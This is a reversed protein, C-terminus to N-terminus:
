KIYTIEKILDNSNVYPNKYLKRKAPLGMHKIIPSKVNYEKLDKEDIHYGIARKPCFVVCAMCNCCNHMFVPKKDKIQINHNPCVKTCLGCSICEDSITFPYDRYKELQAYKSMVKSYNKQIFKNSIPYDCIKKAKIDQAIMDIKKEAKPVVRKASPFPPYALAFNAVCNVKAGYSLKANKTKLIENLYKCSLGEILVPTVVVFIYAKSNISLAEVFKKVPIPMTWQYIPFIFGIVDCDTAPVDIPNCKMSIITTDGLEHAIKYAARYSNGTGTFYYIVKKM